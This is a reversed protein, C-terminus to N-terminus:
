NVEFVKAVCIAASKRVYPDEDTMCQGLPDLLYDLITEVGISGM